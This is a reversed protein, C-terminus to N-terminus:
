FRGCIDRGWSGGDASWNVDYGGMYVFKLLSPIKPDIKYIKSYVLSM